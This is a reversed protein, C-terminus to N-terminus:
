LRIMYGHVMLQENKIFYTSNFFFTDKVVKSLCIQSSDPYNEPFETYSNKIFLSDPFLTQCCNEDIRLKTLIKRGDSSLEIQKNNLKQIRYNEYIGNQPPIIFVGSNFLNCQNSSISNCSTIVILLVLIFNKKFGM